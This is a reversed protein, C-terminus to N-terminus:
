EQPLRTRLYAKLEGVNAIPKWDDNSIEIRYHQEIRAALEALDLSDLGIDGWADEDAPREEITSKTEKLLQYLENM